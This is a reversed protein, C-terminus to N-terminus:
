VVRGHCHKFKKGSGCPCTKNRGVKGWAAPTMGRSPRAGAGAALPLGSQGEGNGPAGSAILGPVGGPMARGENTARPPPAMDSEGPAL